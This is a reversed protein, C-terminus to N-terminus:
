KQDLGLGREELLTMSFPKVLVDAVELTGMKHELEDREDEEIFFVIRLNELKHALSKAVDIGSTENALNLGTFLIDPRLALGRRIADVANDATEVFVGSFELHGLVDHRFREDAEVLLVKKM